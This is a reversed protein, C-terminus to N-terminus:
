FAAYTIRMLPQLEYTQEESRAASSAPHGGQRMDARHCGPVVYVPRGGGHFHSPRGDITRTVSSIACNSGTPGRRAMSAATSALYRQVLMAPHWISRTSCTEYSSERM